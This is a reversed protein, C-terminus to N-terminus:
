VCLKRLGTTFTDLMVASLELPNSKDPSLIMRDAFVEAAGSLPGGSTLLTEIDPKAFRYIFERLESLRSDMDEERKVFRRFVSTEGEPDLNLFVRLSVNKRETFLKECLCYVYAFALDTLVWVDIEAEVDVAAIADDVRHYLWNTSQYIYESVKAETNEGQLTEKANHLHKLLDYENLRILKLLRDEDALMTYYRDKDHDLGGSEAIHYRLVHLKKSLMIDRNIVHQVLEDRAKVKGDEFDEPYRFVAEDGNAYTIIATDEKFSHIIGQDQETNVKTNELDLM